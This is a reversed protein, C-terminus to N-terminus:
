IELLAHAYQLLKIWFKGSRQVWYHLTIETYVSDDCMLKNSLHYWVIVYVMICVINTALAWWSVILVEFLYREQCNRQWRWIVYELSICIKALVYKM